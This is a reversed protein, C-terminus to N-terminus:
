CETSCGGGGVCRLEGFYRGLSEGLARGIRATTGTTAGFPLDATGVELRRLARLPPPPALLPERSSCVDHMYIYIYMYIYM